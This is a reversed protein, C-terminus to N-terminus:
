HGNKFRRSIFYVAEHVIIPLLAIVASVVSPVVDPASNGFASNLYPVYVACLILLIGIIVSFVTMKGKFAKKTFVSNGKGAGMSVMFSLQGIGLALLVCARAANDYGTVSLMIRYLCLIIGGFVAGFILLTKPKYMDGGACSKKYGFALPPLLDGTLNVLLLSSACVPNGLGFVSAILVCVLESINTAALFRIANKINYSMLKGAMLTKEVIAMGLSPTIIEAPVKAADLGHVPAIGVGAAEISAVDDMGDGATATVYGMDSLVNIIRAREIPSLEAFVSVESLKERLSEDSMKDISEGTLIIDSDIGLSAACASALARSQCTLIKTGVGLESLEAIVSSTGELAEVDLGLMGVFVLDYDCIVGDGMRMGVACISLKRERFSEIASNIKQIDFETIDRVEGNEWISRSRSLLKEADGRTYSITTSEARFLSSKAYGDDQVSIRPFSKIVKQANCRSACFEYVASHTEEFLDSTLLLGDILPICDESQPSHLTGNSFSAGLSAKPIDTCFMTVSGLKACSKTNKVSIGASKLISLSNGAAAAVVAFVGEPLLAAAFAAALLVSPVAGNKHIIGFVFVLVASIISVATMIGTKKTLRGLEPSEEREPVDNAHSLMALQTSMGTATVIGDGRGGVVVTGAFACNVREGIPVEREFVRTHDKRVPTQNGTIASEDILLGESSILRIDAPVVRGARLSVIDGVVLEDSPIKMKAGDRLVRAHTVTERVAERVTKEARYEVAEAFCADCVAILVILVAEAYGGVFVTLLAATLLVLISPKGLSSLVRKSLPRNKEGSSKVARQHAEKHSLGNETKVDLHRKVQDVTLRHYM